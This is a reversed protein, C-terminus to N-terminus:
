KQTLCYLIYIGLVSIGTAYLQVGKDKPLSMGEKCTQKTVPNKRKKKNAPFWCPSYSSIDENLVYQSESATANKINRTDMTIRQCSNDQSFASFLKFPNIYSINGLIGPVLGKYDGTKGSSLFPVDGDPINNIFVYRKQTSGDPAICTGGTSMFYKNGLASLGGVHAKKDGYMLVNSYSQLADIDKRLATLNGASSSGIDSPTKIYKHYPYNNNPGSTQFLSM